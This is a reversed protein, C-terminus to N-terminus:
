IGPPTWVLGGGPDSSHQPQFDVGEWLDLLEKQLDTVSFEPRLPGPPVGEEGLRPRGTWGTM